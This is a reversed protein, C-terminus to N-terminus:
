SFKRPRLKCSFKSDEHQRRWFCQSSWTYLELQSISCMARDTLPLKFRVLSSCESRPFSIRYSVNEFMCWLSLSEISNIFLCLLLFLSFKSSIWHYWETNQKYENTNVSLWFPETLSARKGLDFFPVFKVNQVQTLNVDICDFWSCVFVNANRSVLYVIINKTSALLLLLRCTENRWIREIQVSYSARMNWSSISMVCSVSLLFSIRNSIYCCCFLWYSLSAIMPESDSNDPEQFLKKVNVNPICDNSFNEENM